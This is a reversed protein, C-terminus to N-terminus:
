LSRVIVTNKKKIQSESSGLRSKTERSHKEKQSSFHSSSHNTESNKRDCISNPLICSVAKGFISQCLCSVFKKRPLHSLHSVKVRAGECISVNERRMYLHHWAFCRGRICHTVLGRTVHEVHGCVPPSVANGLISRDGQSKRSFGPFPQSLGHRELWSHQRPLWGSWLQSLAGPKGQGRGRAEECVPLKQAIATNSPPLFPLLFLVSM